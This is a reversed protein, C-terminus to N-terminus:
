RRCPSLLLQQLMMWGLRLLLRPGLLRRSLRFRATAGARRQLTGPNIAMTALGLATGVDALSVGAVLLSAVPAVRGSVVGSGAVTVIMAVTGLISISIAERFSEAAAAMSCVPIWATVGAGVRVQSTATRAGVMAELVAAIWPLM